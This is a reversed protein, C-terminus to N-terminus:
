RSTARARGARPTRARGRAEEMRSVEALAGASREVLGAHAARAEAAKLSLGEATERAEDLKRQSESLTQEAEVRQENLRAISERAEAQRPMSVRWKRAVRSIETQVLETRQQM